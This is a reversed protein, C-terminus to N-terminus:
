PTSSVALLAISRLLFAPWDPLLFDVCARFKRRALMMSAISFTHWRLGSM